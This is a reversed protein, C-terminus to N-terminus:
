LGTLLSDRRPQAPEGFLEFCVGAEVQKMPQHEDIVPRYTTYCALAEHGRALDEESVREVVGIHEWPTSKLHVPRGPEDSPPLTFFALRRLAAADGARRLACCVRKVAAHGALHDPHGSIGHVAYTVVVDPRVRRVHATITEELDLPDMTALTGDPFDLIEMGSLELVQAMCAMEESRIRGMEEKSLGLRDRQKTAEGRTLTLLHVAHGSRRLKWLLPAPGFSEDDPHPFIFLFTM